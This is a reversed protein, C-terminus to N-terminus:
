DFLISNRNIEFNETLKRNFIIAIGFIFSIKAADKEAVVVVFVHYLFPSLWRSSNEQVWFVITTM